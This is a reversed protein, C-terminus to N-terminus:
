GGCRGVTGPLRRQESVPWTDKQTLEQNRGNQHQRGIRQEAMVAQLLSERGDRM